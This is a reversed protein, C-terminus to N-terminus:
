ELEKVERNLEALEEPTPVLSPSLALFGLEERIQNRLRIYLREIEEDEFVIRIEARVQGWIAEATAEVEKPSHKQKDLLDANEALLRENVTYHTHWCKDTATKLKRTLDYIPASSVLEAQVILDEFSKQVEQIRRDDVQLSERLSWEGMGRWYDVTLRYARLIELYVERKETRITSATQERLEILKLKRNAELEMQKTKRSNRQTIWVGVLTAIPVALVYLLSAPTITEPM